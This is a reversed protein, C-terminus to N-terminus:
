KVIIVGTQWPHLMCFYPYESPEFNDFKVSFSEGAMIMSSDFNGDPGDAPTGSTITHAASDENVWTVSEGVRITLKSPKFCEDTEECGPVSTGSPIIVTSQIPIQINKIEELLDEILPIKTRLQDESVLLSGHVFDDRFRKLDQLKDRLSKSCLGRQFLNNTIAEISRYRVRKGSIKDGLSSIQKELNPWKNFFEGILTHMDKKTLMTGRLQDRENTLKSIRDLLLNRREITNLPVEKEPQMVIANELFDLENSTRNLENIIEAEREKLTNIFQTEEIKKEEKEHRVSAFKTTALIALTVSTLIIILDTMMKNFINVSEIKETFKEFDEERKDVSLKQLDLPPDIIFNEGPVDDATAVINYILGRTLNTFEINCKINTSMKLFQIKKITDTDETTIIGEPCIFQNIKLQEQSIIFIAANKAQIDGNNEISLKTLMNNSNVPPDISVEFKPYKKFPEWVDLAIPVIIVGISVIAALLYFIEKANM